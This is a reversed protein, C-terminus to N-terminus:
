NEFLVILDAYTLGNPEPLRFYTQAGHWDLINTPALRQTMWLSSKCIAAREDIFTKAFWLVPLCSISTPLSLEHKPHLSISQHYSSVLRFSTSYNECPPVTASLSGPVQQSVELNQQGLHTRSIDYQRREVVVVFVIFLVWNPMFAAILWMGNSVSWIHDLRLQSSKIQITSEHRM